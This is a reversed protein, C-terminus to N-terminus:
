AAKELTAVAEFHFTQPFLDLGVVSQLVFGGEALLRTDRALTAPDCAVYVIRRRVIGALEKVLSDRAGTRPPDLLALDFSKM